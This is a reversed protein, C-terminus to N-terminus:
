RSVKPAKDVLITVIGSINKGQCFVQEQIIPFGFAVVYLTVHKVISTCSHDKYVSAYEHLVYGLFKVGVAVV